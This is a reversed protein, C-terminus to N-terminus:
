RVLNKRIYADMFAQYAHSYCDKRSKVRTVSGNAPGAEPSEADPTSTSQFINPRISKLVLLYIGPLKGEAVEDQMVSAASRQFAPDRDAHALLLLMANVGREGVENVTPFGRASIIRKLVPLNLTDVEVLKANSSHDMFASSVARANQDLRLASMIKILLEGDSVKEDFILQDSFTNPNSPSWSCEKTSKLSAFRQADLRLHWIEQNESESYGQAFAIQIPLAIAVLPVVALLFYRRAQRM